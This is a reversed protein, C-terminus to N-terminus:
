RSSQRTNAGEKSDGDTRRGKLSMAKCNVSSANWSNPAVERERYNKKRQYMLRVTEDKWLLKTTSGTSNKKFAIVEIPTKSRRGQKPQIRKRPSTLAISGKKLPTKKEKTKGSLTETRSGAIM